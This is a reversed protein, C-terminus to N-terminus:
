GGPGYVGGRDRDRDRGGRDRDRDGGRDRDRGGRHRDSGMDRERDRDRDRSRSRERRRPPSRGRDRDRPPSRERPRNRDRDGGGPPGYVGAARSRALEAAQKAEDEAIQAKSKKNERGGLGGGFRMPRWNRVTRGREVDLKVRRGDIKRGDLKKFADAMDDEREFEVFAYGRPKGERDNVMRITKIRGFQELERRLKKESTDYSLRGVFLTNYANSTAKPNSHPDWDAVTLENRDDNLKKMREKVSAQREAPTQFPEREPPPGHEFLSVYQGIGSYAPMQKKVLPEKFEIPPRPEFMMRLNPPLDSLAPREGGGRGGFGGRGGRGRGGGFSM